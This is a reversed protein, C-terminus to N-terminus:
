HRFRPPNWLFAVRSLNPVCEKLIEIRKGILDPGQVSTGTINGGPHALNTVLSARVPDGIGIMVIPITSTMQQAAHTAPTGYVVIVNVQKSALEHAARQLRGFDGQSSRYDIVINQGEIYGLDRLGQRLHDWLNKQGDDIIGIHPIRVSPRQARQSRGLLSRVAL